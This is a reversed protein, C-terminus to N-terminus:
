SILLLIPLIRETRKACILFHLFNPFICNPAHPMPCPANPMPCQYNTIPLQYNTNTIEGQGRMERM